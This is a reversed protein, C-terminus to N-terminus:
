NIKVKAGKLILEGSAKIEINGGGEIGIDSKSSIAITGDRAITLTAQGGDVDVEVAPDDDRLTLLLGSGLQISCERKDGSHLEIHVADGEDAGLPLHMISQGDDNAPPRDEDNYLSGVIIPANIDGGVFQVLVMAGVPPISVTGIRPTAVPVQKLTIGNNRLQVTCTYNEEDSDSVHPHQEQVIAIESTYLGRLEQQVIRQVTDYLNLTTM